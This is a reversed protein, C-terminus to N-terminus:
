EDDNTEEEPEIIMGYHELIGRVLYPDSMERYADQQGLARHIVAHTLDANSSDVLEGNGAADQIDLRKWELCELLVKTVPHALWLEILEPAVQPHRPSEKAM